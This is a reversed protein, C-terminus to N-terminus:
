GQHAVISTHALLPCRLLVCCLWQQDATLGDGTHIQAYSSVSKEGEGSGCFGMAAEVFDKKQSGKVEDQSGVM